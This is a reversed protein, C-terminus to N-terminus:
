LEAYTKSLAQELKRHGDAGPKGGQMVKLLRIKFVLAANPPIVGGAGRTGYALDPPLYVEWEEGEVMYQLAETWGKIVQSPSFTAPHGRDVSSDFVKGNTLSGHYHVSCPDSLNPSKTSATDAMKKLIKFRMGSALQHVDSKADLSAMFAQDVANMQKQM